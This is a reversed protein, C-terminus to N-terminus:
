HWGPTAPQCNLRVLMDPFGEAPIDGWKFRAVATENPPVWLRWTWLLSQIDQAEIGYLKNKDLVHPRAKWFNPLRGVDQRITSLERHQRIVVISLAVVATLLFVSHLPVRPLIRM